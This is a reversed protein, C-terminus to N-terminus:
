PFFSDDYRYQIEFPTGPGHEDIARQNLYNRMAIRPSFTPNPMVVPEFDYMGDYIRGNDPNTTVHGHVKIDDLPWPTVFEAGINMTSLVRGDVTLVQGNANRWWWKAEEYTLKHGIGAHGAALMQQMRAEFETERKQRSRAIRGAHGSLYTNAPETDVKAWVVHYDLSEGEKRSVVSTQGDEPTISDAIHARVNNAQGSPIIKYPIGKVPQSLEDKLSFRLAFDPTPTVSEMFSKVARVGTSARKYDFSSTKSSAMSRPLLRKIPKTPTPEMLQPDDGIFVNGSGTSIKGGCHMADSVRSAPKGNIHVSGSGESVKRGHPPSKPKVHPAAADGQRVAPRGNISVNGSGVIIPTPHWAGHNSAIDGLRAAPQKTKSGM